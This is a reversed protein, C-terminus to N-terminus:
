NFLNDFSYYDFEDGIKIQSVNEPIEIIGDSYALSSIIGSGQKSYKNLYINKKYKNYISVRLWEMRETKKKM